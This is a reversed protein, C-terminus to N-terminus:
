QLFIVAVLGITRYQRKLYAGAGEKIAAAIAQMKENGQPKKNILFFLLFGYIIAAFSCIIAFNVITMFM